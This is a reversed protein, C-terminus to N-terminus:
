NGAGSNMAHTSGRGRGGFICLRWQSYNTLATGGVEKNCELLHQGLPSDGKRHEDVMSALHRVTQGVYTSNCGSSTLEYVIKSRLERAFFNHPIALMNENKKNYFNNTGRINSSGKCSVTSISQMSLTGSEQTRYGSACSITDRVRSGITLPGIERLRM